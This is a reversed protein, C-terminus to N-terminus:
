RRSEEGTMAPLEATWELRSGGEEGAALVCHGSWRAARSALNALGSIRGAEAPPGTGDDRVVLTLRRSLGGHQTVTVEVSSSKAAAHRAVNTLAERLTAILDSRVADPVAADLPGDFGVRPEFGLADRADVAVRLLEARLSGQAQAPAQLSFISNRIERITGDLDQAFGAVRAAVGADAILRSVGELGLGTAFLRQIVLDHLDRAIRDRDSFVALQQRAEQARSFEVALAAHGAFTEALQVDSDTFPSRDRFKAVVLVGLTEEGVILPVSIASDLDKVMAPIPGPHNRQQEQVREGYDRVVVPHRTAFAMGTATGEIPVTMGTLRDADEGPPEVVDFVLRGPDDPRAIAGATGGAVVRAREAVLRLTARLDQASLLARTVDYSAELWRERRRMQDVLLAKEVAMGTAATLAGLVERERRGFEAGDAPEVALTGFTASGARVPLEVVGPGFAGRGYDATGTEALDLRGRRAGLLECTATVARHLLPPLELERAIGGVAALIAPM